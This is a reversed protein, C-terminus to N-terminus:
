KPFPSQGLVVIRRRWSRPYVSWISLWLRAMETVVTQTHCARKSLSLTAQSLMVWYLMSMHGILIMMQSSSIERRILDTRGLHAWPRRLDLKYKWGYGLSAHIGRVYWSQLIEGRPRPNGTAWRVLNPQRKRSTSLATQRMMSLILSQPVTYLRQTHINWPWRWSNSLLWNRSLCYLWMLVGHLFHGQKVLCIGHHLYWCWFHKSENCGLAWWTTQPLLCPPHCSTCAYPLLKQKAECHLHLEKGPNLKEKKKPDTPTSEDVSECLNPCKECDSVM